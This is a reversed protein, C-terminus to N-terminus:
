KNKLEDLELGAREWEMMTTEMEVNLHAHNTFIEPDAVDGSALQQEIEQIKVELESIREELKKVKKEQAKLRKNLEKQELYNLKSEKVLPKFKADSNVPALNKRELEHLSLMQKSELFDYIGGM